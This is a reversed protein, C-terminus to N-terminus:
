ETYSRIKTDRQMSVLGISLGNRKKETRKKKLKKSKGFLSLILYYYNREQM